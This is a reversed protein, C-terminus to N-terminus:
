ESLAEKENQITCEAAGMVQTGGDGEPGREEGLVELMKWVCLYKTFIHIDM